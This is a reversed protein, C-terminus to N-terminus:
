NISDIITFFVSLIITPLLSSFIWFLHGNKIKTIAVHCGMAEYARKDCGSDISDTDNISLLTYNTCFSGNLELCKFTRYSLLSTTYTTTVSPARHRSSKFTNVTQQDISPALYDM